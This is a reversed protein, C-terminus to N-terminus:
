ATREFNPRSLETMRNLIRVGIKANGCAKVHIGANFDTETEGESDLRLLTM